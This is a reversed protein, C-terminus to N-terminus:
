SPTYLLVAVPVGAQLQVARDREGVARLQEVGQVVALQVDFQTDGMLVFMGGPVTQPKM